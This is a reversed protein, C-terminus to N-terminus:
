APRRRTAYRRLGPAMGDLCRPCRAGLRTLTLRKVPVHRHCKGCPETARSM